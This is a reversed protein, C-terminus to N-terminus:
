ETAQPKGIKGAGNIASAQKEGNCTKAGKDFVIQGYVHPKIETSEIRNRHVMHSNKQWNWAIKIIMTRYYLQFDPLTIGRAENKKNLIVNAIQSRKHYWLFRTIKQEIEKLFLMSIRIALANLRYLAKLLIAMKVIKIRGTWSCLNDKCKM